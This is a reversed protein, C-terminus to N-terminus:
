ENHRKFSHHRQYGSIQQEAKKEGVLEDIKKEMSDLKAVITELIKTLAVISEAIDINESM